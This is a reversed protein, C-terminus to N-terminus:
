GRSEDATRGLRATTWGTATLRYLTVVRDGERRKSMQVLGRQNMKDLIGIMKRWKEPHRPSPNMVSCFIDVVDQSGSKRKALFDVIDLVLNNSEM